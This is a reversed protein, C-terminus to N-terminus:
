RDVEGLVIDVTGLTLVADAVYSGTLLHKLGMLNCFSPPRVKIRYPRDSGDAVLYVGIEGTPNEARVYAEGEPVRIGTPRRLANVPGDPIREMAQKVIRLSQRVEQIRVYYRDWNDGNSGAPIDFDFKDYSSYPEAKRVDHAIGSGRLMPGLMGYEIATEPTLVGVNRLRAVFVENFTLLRDVEDTDFEVLPLIESLQEKWGDHLDEKVGGVQIYNPLMRAGAAAQFFEM